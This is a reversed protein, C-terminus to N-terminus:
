SPLYRHHSPLWVCGHASQGPLSKPGEAELGLLCGGHSPWWARGGTWSPGCSPRLCSGITMERAEQLWSALFGHSVSELSAVDLEPGAGTSPLSCRSPRKQILFPPFNGQCIPILPHSCSVPPLLPTLLCCSPLTPPSPQSELVHCTTGAGPLTAERAQTNVARPEPLEGRAWQSEPYCLCQSSGM